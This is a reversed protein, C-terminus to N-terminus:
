WMSARYSVRLLVGQPCYTPPLRRSREGLCCFRVREPVVRWSTWWSSCLEKRSATSHPMRMLLGTGTSAGLFVVWSRLMQSTSSIRAASSLMSSGMRCRATCRVSTPASRSPSTAPRVGSSISKSAALPMPVKVTLREMCRTCFSVSACTSLPQMRRMKGSLSSPLLVERMRFSVLVSAEQRVMKIVAARRSSSFCHSSRNFRSSARSGSRYRLLPISSRSGLPRATSGTSM